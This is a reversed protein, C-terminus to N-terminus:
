EEWYFEDYYVCLVKALKELIAAGPVAHKVNKVTKLYGYRLGAAKEIASRSLGSDKELREFNSWFVEYVSKNNVIDGMGKKYQNWFL